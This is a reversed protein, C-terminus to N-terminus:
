YSSEGDAIDQGHIAEGFSGDDGVALGLGTVSAAEGSCGAAGGDDNTM